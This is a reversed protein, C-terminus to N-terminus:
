SWVGTVSGTQDDVTLTCTANSVGDATQPVGSANAGCRLGGITTADPFATTNSIEVKGKSLGECPAANGNASAASIAATTATDTGVLKGVAITGPVSQVGNVLGFAIPNNVVMDAGCAKAFGSMSGILSQAEAKNRTGLFNPLAVASLIGVIVIVIMLEVLTFGKELLNRGKKQNIIALQLKSNLSTM